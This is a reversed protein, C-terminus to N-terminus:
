GSSRTAADSKVPITYLSALMIWFVPTRLGYTFLGYAFPAAILLWQWGVLRDRAILYFSTYLLGFGVIGYYFLPSVISSHVEYIVDGDISGAFRSDFGQGAGFLLYQPFELLRFYGRIELQWWLGHKQTREILEDIVENVSHSLSYLAFVILLLILLAACFTAVVKMYPLRDSRRHQPALMTLPQVAHPFKKTHRLVTWWWVMAALLVMAALMASRSASLVFLFCILLFVAFTVPPTLWSPRQPTWLCGVFLCLLWYSMQNPDSFTGFFRGDRYFDDGGFLGFGILVPLMFLLAWPMALGLRPESLFVQRLAFFLLVGYTWHATSVMFSLDRHLYWYIFNLGTSYSWFSLLLKEPLGLSMSGINFMLPVILLLVLVHGPQPYGPPSIYIATSMLVLTLVVLSYKTQRYFMFSSSGLWFDRGRRNMGIAM